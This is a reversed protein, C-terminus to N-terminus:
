RERSERLMWYRRSADSLDPGSHDTYHGWLFGLVLGVALSLAIM